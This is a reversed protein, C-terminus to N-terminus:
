KKVEQPKKFSIKIHDIIRAVVAKFSDFAFYYIIFMITFVVIAFILVYLIFSVLSTINLSLKDFAFIFVINIAIIFSYLMFYKLYNRKFVNKYIYISNQIFTTIFTAIITGMLVGMIKYKHVLTVSIILNIIAELITAIKTEKFLGLSNITMVVARVSISQFIIFCFLALILNSTLYEKGIWITILSNLFGYLMIFSFSAIFLFLINLECFVSYKKEDNEKCLVNAYSPTIATAIIYVTDSVFKTVYSYSTYIIVSLPTIFTSLLIIDTNSNMIGSLKLYILDKTGKLYKKNFKKNNELWPYEKAVLKNIYIDIAVTILIGPILVFIYNVGLKVLVIEALIEAVKIGKVLYDIKYANQNSEMIFRPAIFFYDIINRIMFIICVLQIYSSPVDAKTLYQVFFSIVFAISLMIVGITKYFKKSTSYINIIEKKDEKAFANYLHKNLILGFGADAIAIYGFIQFFLQNLSYIDDSLGAVFVKVKAFGLVGILLNFIVVSIINKISKKTRM